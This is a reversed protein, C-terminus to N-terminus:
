LYVFAHLYSMVRCLISLVVFQRAAGEVCERYSNSMIVNASKGDGGGGADAGGGRWVV